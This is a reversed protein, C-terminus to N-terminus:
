DVDGPLPMNTYSLGWKARIEDLFALWEEKNDELVKELIENYDDTFPSETNEEAIAKIIIDVVTKACAKTEDDIPCGNFYEKLEILKAIDPNKLGQRLQIIHERYAELTANSIELIETVENLADPLLYVLKETELYSHMRHAQWFLATVCTMIHAFTFAALVVVDVVTKYLSSITDVKRNQALAFIMSECNGLLASFFFLGLAATGATQKGLTKFYNKETAAEKLLTAARYDIDVKM